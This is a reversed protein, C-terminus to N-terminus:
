ALQLFAPQTPLIRRAGTAGLDHSHYQHPTVIGKICRKTTKRDHFFPPAIVDLSEYKPQDDSSDGNGSPM